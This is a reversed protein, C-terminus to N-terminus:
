DVKTQYNVKISAIRPSDNESDRSMTLTVSETPDGTWTGTLGSKSYTGSSTTENGGVFDKAEWLTGQTLSGQETRHFYTVEIGSIIMGDTATVTITGGNNSDRGIRLSYDSNYTRSIIGFTVTRSDRYWDSNGLTISVPSLTATGTYNRFTFNAGQFTQSGYQIVQATLPIPNGFGDIHFYLGVNNITRSYNERIDYLYITYSNGASPQEIVYEYYQGWSKAQYNWASTSTSQNLSGTDGVIVEFVGSPTSASNDSYPVLTSTYLKVKVPYQSPPFDSPLAFTLKYVERDKGGVTRTTHNDVLEPRTAFNFQTISYVDVYRSMGSNKAILQLSNHKLETNLTALPFSITGEGTLPDFTISPAVQKGDSDTAVVDESEDTDPKAEWIASFNTADLGAAPTYTFGITGTGNSNFMKASKEVKLTYTGNSIEEVERDVQAYPNNSYDTTSLADDLNESGVSEPLNKVTLTFTQNRMVQYPIGENSQLLVTHYKVINDTYTTKIIIKVPDNQANANEFLYQPEDEGAWISEVDSMTSYKLSSTYETLRSATAYDNTYPDNGSATVPAIYGKNLGNGVTWQITSIGTATSAKKLVIKARDRLLMVTNGGSLWTKMSTSSTERHYGWFRVKDDKGSSLVDLKMVSRESAGMTISSLDPTYNAVFHIRCTNSPVLGTLTGKTAPDTSSPHVEANKTTIYKGEGDFCLMIITSIAEEQGNIYSRVSLDAPRAVGLKVAMQGEPVDPQQDTVEIKSCGALIVAISAFVKFLNRQNM